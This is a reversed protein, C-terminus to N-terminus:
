GGGLVYASGVSEAILRELSRGLSGFDDADIALRFGVDVYGRLSNLSDVLQGPDISPDSLASAGMAGRGGASPTVFEAVNGILHRFRVGGQFPIEGTPYFWLKDDINPGPAYGWTEGTAEARAYSGDGPRYHSAMGFQLAENFHAFQKAFSGDRLNWRGSRPGPGAQSLAARFEAETPLRCGMARAAADAVVYPVFNLPHRGTPEGQDTSIRKMESDNPDRLDEHYAPFSEGARAPGYEPNAQNLWSVEPDVRPRRGSRLVRSMPGNERVDNELWDRVRADNTPDIAGSRILYGMLEVSFEDESLFVQGGNGVEVLHFRISREGDTYTVNASNDPNQGLSARWGLGAGAPGYANEDWGRRSDQADALAADVSDLWAGALSRARDGLASRGLDRLVRVREATRNKLENTLRATTAEDAGRSQEVARQADALIEARVRLARADYLTSGELRDVDIARALEGGLDAFWGPGEEVLVRLDSEGGAVDFGRRWWGSVVGSALGSVRSWAEADLSARLAELGARLRDAEARMGVVDTPWGGSERAVEGARVLSALRVAQHPEDRGTAAVDRRLAELDSLSGARLVGEAVDMVARVDGSAAVVGAFEGEFRGLLGGIEGADPVVGAGPLECRELGEGLSALRDLETNLRALYATEEELVSRVRGEIEGGIAGAKPVAWGDGVDELVRAVALARRRLVLPEIAEWEFGGVGMLGPEIASVGRTARGIVQELAELRDRLEQSEDRLSADELSVGAGAFWRDWAGIFEEGLRERLEALPGLRGVMELPAIAAIMQGGRWQQKLEDPKQFMYRYVTGIVEHLMLGLKNAETLLQRLRGERSPWNPENDLETTLRDFRDLLVNVDSDQQYDLLRATALEVALGPRKGYAQLWMEKLSQHSDSISLEARPGENAGYARSAGAEEVWREGLELRRDVWASVREAPWDAGPRERLEEILEGLRSRMTIADVRREIWAGEAVGKVREFVREARGVRASLDELGDGEGVVLLSGAVDPWSALLPDAGLEARLAPSLGEIEALGGLRGAIEALRTHTELELREAEPASREVARVGEILNQVAEMSARPVPGLAIPVSEGGLDVGERLVGLSSEVSEVPGMFLAAAREWGARERWQMTVSELRDRAAWSDRSFVGALGGGEETGDLLREAESYISAVRNLSELRREVDASTGDAVGAWFSRVNGILEALWETGQREHRRIYESRLVAGNPDFYDELRSRELMRLDGRLHAVARGLIESAPDSESLAGARERLAQVGPTVQVWREFASLEFFAEPLGPKRGMMLVLAAIAGVVVLSAAVGGFVVAPGPGPKHYALGSLKEAVTDLTLGRAKPDLLENVLGLWFGHEPGIARWEPSERVPYGGLERFPRHMVLEYILMGLRRIEDRRAAELDDGLLRGPLPDRLGVRLRGPRIDAILVADSDLDGHPRGAASEIARLSAVIGNVLEYLVDCRLRARGRVLGGVSLAYRDRVAYGGRETAGLERVAVVHGLGLGGPGDGIREALRKQLARREFFLGLADEESRCMPDPDCREVVLTPETGGPPVALWSGDRPGVALAGVLRYAEIGAM